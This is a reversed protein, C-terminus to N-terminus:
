TSIVPSRNPDVLVDLYLASVLGLLHILPIRGLIQMVLLFSVIFAEIKTTIFKTHYWFLVLKYQKERYLPCISTKAARRWIIQWVSLSLERGLFYKTM